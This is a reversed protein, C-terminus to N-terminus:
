HSSYGLTVLANKLLPYIEFQLSLLSLSIYYVFLIIFVDLISSFCDGIHLKYDNLKDCLKLSVATVVTGFLTVNYLM